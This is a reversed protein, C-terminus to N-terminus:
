KRAFSESGRVQQKNKLYMYTFPRPMSEDAFSNGLGLNNTIYEAVLIARLWNGGAVTDSRNSRMTTLQNIDNLYADIVYGHFSMDAWM